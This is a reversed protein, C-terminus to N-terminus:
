SLQKKRLRYNTKRNVKRAWQNQRNAIGANQKLYATFFRMRDTSSVAESFFMNVQVLNKLRLRNPLRGFKKTRENDLFFFRWGDQEKRALVNGLRLDGHFIGGAHMRGVTQGFARFLERKSKLEEKSLYELDKPIAQYIQKANEIELTVLFNTTNFFGARCEAMAVVAPVDFGNEALMMAADFARRARGARFLHKIFDWISRCLYRKFYLVRDVGNSIKAKQGVRKGEKSNRVPDIDDFRVAFKYIRAFKSSRITTLRYRQRLQKEGALLAQELNSNRFNKNIYLTCNGRRIKDFGSDLINDGWFLLAWGTPL